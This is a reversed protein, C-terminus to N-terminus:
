CRRDPCRNSGAGILIIVAALAIGAWLVYYLIRRVTPKTAEPVDFPNQESLHKGSEILALARNLIADEGGFLEEMTVPVEYDPLVGRGFPVRENVKTDFVIEELPIKITIMSNPLRIDMFKNANMFHYANRTERGVTVGRRNRVVLAPFLSAASVSNENTLVYVRGKYNILSDPMYTNGGDSRKYFGKKGEEEVYDPFIESDATYNLSYKAADFWGKKNVKGYGDLTMPEGAIFSYVANLPEDQGGPNNRVDIILHPVASLTDIFSGIEGVQVQNLAFTSLGLYATSDNLMKTEFAEPRRNRRAFDRMDNVWSPIGKKTSHGKIEVAWGDAFEMNMDFNSDGYPEIFFKGFGLTALQMKKYSEVKADYGDVLSTIITKISDVPIGNVAVIERELLHEYEKTANTCILPGDNLSGFWVAPQFEPYAKRKEWAPPYMYIHSDHIREQTRYMIARFDDYPLDGEASEIKAAITNVYQELEEETVVNYLGPYAEKLADIYIMFDELAQGKTVSVIPKIESPPIFSTEIGFPTMPDAHKTNRSISLEVSSERVKHYSYGVKGLLEGKKVKQGTKFRLDGTLGSMHILNGSGDGTMISISGKVYKPDISSPLEKAIRVIAEDFTESAEMGYGMSYSLSKLYGLSIGTITGDCPSLVATGEPAGIFLNGFNLEGDIYSQPAYLIDSGAEAGEIPWLYNQSDQAAAFSPLLLLLLLLKKM